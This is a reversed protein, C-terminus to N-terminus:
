RSVVTLRRFSSPGYHDAGDTLLVGILYRGARLRRAQARTLTLALHQSRGAALNLTVLAMPPQSAGMTMRNTRWISIQATGAGRPVTFEVAVRRGKALKARTVRPRVLRMASPQLASTFHWTAAPEPAAAPAPTTSRDIAPPSTSPSATSPAAHTTFSFTAPASANGAADRATVSFVHAGPALGSYLKPDSCLTAGAGDLTCLYSAGADNSSFRMTADTGTVDADAPGNNITVTPASRDVTFSSTATPGAGITPDPSVARVEFRHTGESLTSDGLSSSDITATPASGCPTWPAADSPADLRCEFTSGSPGSVQWGASNGTTYNGPGSTIRAVPRGLPTLTASVLRGNGPNENLGGAPADGILLTGDPGAALAGVANVGSVYTESAGTAVKLAAVQDPANIAPLGDAAANANSTGAYVRGNAADVAVATAFGGPFGPVPVAAQGVVSADDIRTVGNPEALYLAAGLRAISTVGPNMATGAMTADCPSCTAPNAIRHILSSRKTTYDLVPTGGDNGLALGFARDPDALIKTGATIKATAPDVTLKWIGNSHSSGEAVFLSNSSADFALQFPAVPGAHTGACWVGDQVVAHTVPDVRCIGLLADSVWITGASDLAVGAPLTLSTGSPVITSTDAHAAPAIVAGVLALAAVLATRLRGRGEGRVKPM